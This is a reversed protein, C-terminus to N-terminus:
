RCGSIMYKLILSKVEIEGTNFVELLIFIGRGPTLFTKFNEIRDWTAPYRGNSVFRGPYYVLTTNTEDQQALRGGLYLGGSQLWWFASSHATNGNFLLIPRNKPVIKSASSLKIALPLNPFLYGAFGGSASNGVFNNYANTIYFPSATFDAPNIMNPTEYLVDLEQAYYNGFLGQSIMEPSGMYSIFAGLNYTINNNEEM